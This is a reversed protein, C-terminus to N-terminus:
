KNKKKSVKKFQSDAKLKDLEDIYKQEYEAKTDKKYTRHAENLSKVKNTKQENISSTQTKQTDRLRTSDSKYTAQLEQRKAANGERLQAIENQISDSMREKEESSMGKLKERLSDIKSQTQTTHAEVERKMQDRKANIVNTTSNRITQIQNKSTTRVGEIQSTTRTKHKEIKSDREANLQEKIYSAANKGKDNLGSTSKRGKLERTRMYYEHAKVPDYYPSAYHKLGLSAELEDLQVDLDDLEMMADEYDEEPVEDYGELLAQQEQSLDQVPMNKNSLEEARSTNVPKYGIIARIENSSLIENRTFRDAIDALNTVPVLRFPDRFFMISQGQTRATKTLFSWKMADVIACLIPDITRNYYNLSEQESATGKLIEETMGLQSYLMSTLYEIQPMLNNEISRNLQVIKETGDVYAIGYKSGSLQMEIDKRRQDAQQRRQESKIVYPLQIIMDLKESSNKEDINDLLNLKRVLRRLTSNPENVVSYLPNEVIAVSEKPLIIEEKLGTRDNYLRLRVHKPYWELIKATRLSNIEFSASKTPDITTDVPVIAIVGEDFLSLVVDQIFSRSSQDINARITLCKNLESDIENMFRDNEDLRVHKIDVSSVDIAIRTFIAAMISRENGLTLRIRDPKNSFSMGLNYPYVRTPDRNTFANWAHSLRDRFKMM